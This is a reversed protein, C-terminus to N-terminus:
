ASMSSSIELLFQNDVVFCLLYRTIEPLMGNHRVRAAHWNGSIYLTKVILKYSSNIKLPHWSFGFFAM